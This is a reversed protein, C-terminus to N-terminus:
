REEFTLIGSSWIRTGGHMLCLGTWNWQFNFNKEIFWQLRSDSSICLFGNTQEWGYIQMSLYLKGNASETIEQKVVIFKQWYHKIMLWNHSITVNYYQRVRDINFPSFFIKDAFLWNILPVASQEGLSIIYYYHKHSLWSLIDHEFWLIKKRRMKEESWM